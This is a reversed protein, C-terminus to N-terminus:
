SFKVDKSTMPKGDSFKVGARLKFTWTLGDKSASWSTALSPKLSKADQAPLLLTDFIEEVVWIGANDPPISPTLSSELDGRLITLNGGKVPSAASAGQSFTFSAPLVLAFAVAGVLVKKSINKM